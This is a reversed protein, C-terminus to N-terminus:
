GDLEGKLFRAQLEDAADSSREPQAKLDLWVQAPHATVFGDVRREGDFVGRDDPVVLWVNSGKEQEVFDISQLQTAKPFTTVYATVLRFGAFHTYSWCGALGTLAYQIGLGELARALQEVTETGSRGPVHARLVRHRQFQYDASWAELM